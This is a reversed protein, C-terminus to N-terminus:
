SSHHLSFVGFDDENQRISHSEVQFLNPHSLQIKKDM